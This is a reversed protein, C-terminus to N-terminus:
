KRLRFFRSKGDINMTVTNNQAGTVPTWHSAPLSDATELVFGAVDAPWSITVTSGKLSVSLQTAPPAGVSLLQRRQDVNLVGNWITFEDFDGGVDVNWNSAPALSIQNDGEAIDARPQLNQGIKQGDLYLTTGGNSGDHTITAMAWRGIPYPASGATDRNSGWVYANNNKAGTFALLARPTGAGKDTVPGFGALYALSKPEESLKLWLNISWSDTGMIPLDNAAQAIIPNAAALRVAQGSVGAVYEVTGSAVGDNGHNSTDTLNKEFKWESVLTAPPRSQVALNAPNSAVRDAANRIEVRYAGSDSTKANTVVLSSNTAWALIQGDKTWQFTLPPTGTAGVALTVDDGEYANVASPQSSITPAIVKITDAELAGKGDLGATYIATIEGPSLGRNWIAVDDLKGNWYGPAGPDAMTGDDTLKAGIGLAGIPAPVLTGDYDAIAVQTGNRYLRVKSGDCAFAVHQWSGLPFLQPDSTNPTKGDAQKIYINEQGGDAFLGFHFQGAVAGGWNKVFSAWTPRSDAWAWLSVTITNTPKPFDAVLIYQQADPGGLQVAGGIRGSIWQSNDGPFNNLLGSNHNATADVASEGEKEDFKWYGVLGTALTVKQVALAAKKSSVSGGPNTAVVIYDGADSEKISAISYTANTAGPISQGNLQWQYGISGAGSAKISFAVTEGVFRSANQPQETIVPPLNQYQDAKTLDKGAQGASYIAAMQASTLAQTWVGVDDIKGQWYGSSAAGTDDLTAGIGLAPSVPIVLTGSYNTSVAVEAGNRYLRLTTGEAVLGVHQWGGTPFGVTENVVVQGYSDTTTDGLPGFAQDRNKLRIVLGIPGGSGLGSEVITSQPWTDLPDAYAWASVSFTNTPTPYNAVAVYDDGNGPGRFGLAGGIQGTVWQPSDGISNNVAGNNGRGSSDKATVGQTEDFTWHGALGDVIGAGAQGAMGALLLWGAM